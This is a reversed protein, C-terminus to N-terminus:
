SYNDWYYKRQLQVACCSVLLLKFVLKEKLLPISNKDISNKRKLPNSQRGGGSNLRLIHKSSRCQLPVWDDYLVTLEVPYSKHLNKVM